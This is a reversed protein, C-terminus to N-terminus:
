PLEANIVEVDAEAKFELRARTFTARMTVTVPVIQDHPAVIEPSAAPTEHCSCKSESPGVM